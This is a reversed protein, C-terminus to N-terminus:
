ILDPPQEATITSSSALTSSYPFYKPLTTVSLSNIVFFDNVVNYDVSSLNKGPGSDSKKGQGNHQQLDNVLQFFTNRATLLQMSSHNPICLLELSDNYLRRKVYKYQVGSVEIQGDVREFRASNNYYSLHTSPIKILFLQSEDYTNGDLRAELQRDSRNQLYDTLIRYGYWNFFLIGILLIAAIKKM